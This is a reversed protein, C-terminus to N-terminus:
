SVQSVPQLGLRVGCSFCSDRGFGFWNCKSYGSKVRERESHVWSQSAINISTLPKALEAICWTKFRSFSTKRWGLPGPCHSRRGSGARRRRRWV